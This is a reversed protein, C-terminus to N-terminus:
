DLWINGPYDFIRGNETTSPSCLRVMTDAIESPHKVTKPDEGPAYEARMKTRLTGPDVLNARVPTQDLERAWSKIMAELAAKSASYPAVFPRNSRSAGSSVFVARGATSQRLLPELSRILRHNATVNVNFVAEFNKPDVHSLPSVQGLM